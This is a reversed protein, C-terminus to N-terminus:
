VTQMATDEDKYSGNQTSVKTIQDKKSSVTDTGYPPQVTVVTGYRVMGYPVMRRRAMCYRVIGGNRRRIVLIQLGIHLM